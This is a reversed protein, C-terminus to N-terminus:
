HAIFIIKMILIIIIIVIKMVILIYEYKYQTSNDCSEICENTNNIIKKQKSKWDNSCDIVNCKINNMQESIIYKTINETTCIVINEQVNSFIDEYSPLQSPGFNILNIYELNICDSFMNDMIRVKSANFNSLDLSTLLSCGSFMLNMDEVQSTDFSSLDLSILSSCGAFMAIMEIVHATDFNSLNLSTLSTCGVFMGFMETVQSTNINSLNISTLSTCGGFMGIMYQVQSTNFNSLDIETINICEYFMLMCSNINDDWILEVLNDSKNFIYNYAITSQNIGNIYVEKLYDIGNFQFDTSNGLITNEGEGKIKLSIKSYTFFISNSKTQNYFNIIVIIKIIFVSLYNIDSFINKIINFKNSNNKIDCFKIENNQRKKEKRKDERIKKKM